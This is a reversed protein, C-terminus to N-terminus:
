RLDPRAVAVAVALFPAAFFLIIGVYHFWRLPTENM